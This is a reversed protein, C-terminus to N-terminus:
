YKSLIKTLSFQNTISFICFFHSKYSQILRFYNKMNPLLWYTHPPDPVWTVNGVGQNGLIGKASEKRVSIGQFKQLNGVLRSLHPKEIVSFGISAAYSLRILQSRGFRITYTDIARFGTKGKAFYNWVQDSGVIIADYDQTDEELELLSFYERKSFALYNERFKGFSRSPVKDLRKKTLFSKTKHIVYLFVKKPRFIKLIRVVELHENRQVAYPNFKLITVKHNQRQLYHSLGYMQLVQGYNDEGWWHTLIGIKM